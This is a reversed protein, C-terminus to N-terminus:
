LRKFLSSPESGLEIRERASSVEKRLFDVHDAQISGILQSRNRVKHKLDVVVDYLPQEGQGVPWWLAVDQGIALDWEVQATGDADVPADETKLVKGSKDRLEFNVSSGEIISSVTVTSKLKAFKHDATITTDIRNAV